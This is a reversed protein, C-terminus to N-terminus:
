KCLNPHMRAFFNFEEAPDIEVNLDKYKIMLWKIFNARTTVKNADGPLGNEFKIDELHSFIVTKIDITRAFSNNQTTTTQTM